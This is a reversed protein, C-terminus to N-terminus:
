PPKIGLSEAPKEDTCSRLFLGPFHMLAKPTVAHLYSCSDSLIGKTRNKIIVATILEETNLLM